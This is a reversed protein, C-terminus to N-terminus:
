GVAGSGGPGERGGVRLVVGLPALAGPCDLVLAGDLLVETFAEERVAEDLLKNAACLVLALAVEVSDRLMVM